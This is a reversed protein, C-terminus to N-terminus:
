LSEGRSFSNDGAAAILSNAAARYDQHDFIASGAVFVNAGAHAPAAITSLGIGGDISILMQPGAARRIERVKGVAAPMFEQGGFGPKVSMVLILDCDEYYASLASVPTAPSIALGAGRGAQRIKQLLPRPDRVAELHFTIWDCGAKLYEDIYKEPDSIMLHADFVADTRARVRQIVMAGYSLNPVFHGDMVDWHFVRLGAADLRQSEGSLDGFDCKLLSPAIVPSRDRLCGISASGRPMPSPFTACPHEGSASSRNVPSMSTHFFGDM